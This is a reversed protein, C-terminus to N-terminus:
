LARDREKTEETAEVGSERLHGLLNSIRGTSRLLDSAHLSVASIEEAAARLLTERDSGPDPSGAASEDSLRWTLFSKARDIAGWKFDLAKLLRALTSAD